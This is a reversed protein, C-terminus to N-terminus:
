RDAVSWCNWFWPPKEPGGGGGGCRFLYENSWCCEDRRSNTGLGMISTGSGSLAGPVQVDNKWVVGPIRIPRRVDPDTLSLLGFVAVNGRRTASFSVRTGRGYRVLACQIVPAFGFGGGISSTLASGSGVMAPELSGDGGCAALSGALEVSEVGDFRALFDMEICKLEGVLQIELVPLM